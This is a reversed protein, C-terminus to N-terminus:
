ILAKKLQLYSENRLAKLKSEVKQYDINTQWPKFNDMEEFSTFYRDSLDLKALLNEIRTSLGNNNAVIAFQRHHLISFVLGHFSRTVVFSAEAINKIWQEISVRNWELSNFIYDIKNNNVPMLHLTSALKQSYSELEPDNSLPYYVLTNKEKLERTLERYNELLLTPDLVCSAEVHFIDNLLKVGSEERCLISSFRSLLKQIHATLDSHHWDLSGFSSAYSVRKVEPLGFDLFYINSFNKTLDPNWVQDSGVMYIDAKPPDNQLETISRYRKTVPFNMKWFNVFKHHGPTIWRLINYVRGNLNPCREDELRINIMKVENGLRQLVKITAYAQLEAGYNKEHWITVLAIKM